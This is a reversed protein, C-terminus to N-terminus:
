PLWLEFRAGGNAGNLLKVQGHREGCRHALAVSRCLETGLGTSSDSPDHAGLGPGDDDIVFVLYGDDQRLSLTVLSTAFRGANHLAADLAMQVLRRDFYWFAPEAEHTKVTIRPTNPLSMYRIQCFRYLSSLLEAPSEDECHTHLATTSGYITLFQVFQRRLEMCHMHASHAMVPSPDDIMAALESELSGLANKLDHAILAFSASDM